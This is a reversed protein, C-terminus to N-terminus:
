KEGKMEEIYMRFLTDFGERILKPNTVKKLIVAWEFFGFAAAFNKMIKMEEMVETENM